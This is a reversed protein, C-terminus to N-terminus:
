RAPEESRLFERVASLLIDSAEPLRNLNSFAQVGAV